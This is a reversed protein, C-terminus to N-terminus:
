PECRPNTDDLIDVLVVEEDNKCPHTHKQSSLYSSSMRRLKNGESKGDRYAVACGNSQTLVLHINSWFPILWQLFGFICERDEIYTSTLRAAIIFCESLYRSDPM